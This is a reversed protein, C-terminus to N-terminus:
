YRGGSQLRRGVPSAQGKVVAEHMKTNYMTEMLVPVLDDRVTYTQGQHFTMDNIRIHDTSPGLDIEVRHWTHEEEEEETKEAKKPKETKKPKAVQQVKSMDVVPAPRGIVSNDLRAEPAAVVEESIKAGPPPTMASDPTGATSPRGTREKGTM